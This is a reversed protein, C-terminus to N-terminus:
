RRAGNAGPFGVLASHLLGDHPESRRVFIGRACASLGVLAWAMRAHVPVVTRGFLPNGGHRALLRLGIARYVSAAVHIAWRARLPLFRMGRRASEYYREAVGLLGAVTRSVSAPDASGDILSRSSIGAAHLRTEPLYVRDRRADELVDRCVNTIQMAIGLDIAHPAARPDTPGLVGTMLLGVTGAVGYCYEILERDDRIRVRGLDSQVARVLHLAPSPDMRQRAAVDFLADIVPRPPMRGQLEDEVLGLADRADLLDTAEDALDDVERCFAYLVAADNRTRAPLLRAALRFTRGHRALIEMSTAVTDNM